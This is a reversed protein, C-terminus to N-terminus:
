DKRKKTSNNNYNDNASTSSSISSGSSSSSNRGGSDFALLAAKVSSLGNISALTILDNDRDNYLMNHSCRRSLMAQVIVFVIYTVFSCCSPFLVRTLSSNNLMYVLISECGTLCVVSCFM